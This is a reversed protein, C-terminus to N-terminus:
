RALQASRDEHRRHQWPGFRPIAVIALIVGALVAALVTWARAARRTVRMRARSRPGYEARVSVYAGRLHALVHVAALAVWVIFSVKHIPVLMGRSGPGVLLLAVGSAMMTVTSLVVGIGLVRLATPPPGKRRYAQRGAYYGVFRYGTSALKLGIPGLLLMGLFMHLTILQGIFLITVGEVALPLLLLAGVVGTLHENGEVGDGAPAPRTATVRHTTDSTAM